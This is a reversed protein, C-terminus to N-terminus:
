PRTSTCRDELFSECSSFKFLPNRFFGELLEAVDRFRLDLSIGSSDEEALTDALTKYVKLPDIRIPLPM